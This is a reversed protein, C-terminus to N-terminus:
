FLIIKDKALALPLYDKEDGVVSPKGKKAVKGQMGERGRATKDGM